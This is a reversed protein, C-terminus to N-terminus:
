LLLNRHTYKSRSEEPQLNSFDSVTHGNKAASSRLQWKSTLLGEVGVPGRAHIRGTSIGVEAGLGFRYGDAFRTSANHMVVAGDVRELFIEAKTADETIISETHGSGYTHIHTIAANIDDVVHVTIGLAGYETKFNNQVVANNTLQCRIAEASGNVEVGAEVLHSIIAQAPSVPIAHHGNVAKTPKLLDRHLLLTELANCASPYDVKSDVVIRCAKALDADNDVYVHCIGEAHGMVPIRTNEKIFTVMSGSGRPICMDIIEDMALLSKIDDRSKVLSVACGSVQGDTVREIADSILSALIANSHEAEKGGKLILGNASRIALAAIQPLCDPRSEFIVLLVGIPCSIKDLVLGKSLEMRSQLAGVPENQKAIARIGTSLVQLKEPTLQLRNLSPGSISGSEGRKAKKVDGENAVLIDGQRREIEDAIEFLIAERQTSTLAQLNRGAERCLAAVEEAKGNELGLPAEEIPPMGASGTEDLSLPFDDTEADSDELLDDHQIRTALFLTGRDEGSIVAEVTDREFGSAIVVSKVGRKCATIAADVKAAMGGRGQLSKIGEKFTSNPDYMKIRTAGAETPPLDYCGNVDTLLILLDAHVSSAVAGALSDNDSFGRGFTNYGQNASVADNENLIPIIGCALLQTLVHQINLKRDADMFDFCTLLLQSTSIDFSRFLTDYLAILGMQGAAASASNYSQTHKVSDKDLIDLMEKSTSRTLTAGTNFDRSDARVLGPGLAGDDVCNDERKRFVSQRKMRQRGVGVAGSSVIVVEKGLLWLKSAAEVLYSIRSLSPYGDENTVVSTGAKIVVRHVTSLDSRGTLSFLTDMDAM